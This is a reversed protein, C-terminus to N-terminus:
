KGIRSKARLAMAVFISILEQTEDCLPKLKNEAVFGGEM